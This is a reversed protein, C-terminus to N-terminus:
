SSAVLSTQKRSSFAISILLVVLAGISIAYRAGDNDQLSIIAPLVLLSVLNM